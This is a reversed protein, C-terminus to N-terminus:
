HEEGLTHLVNHGNIVHALADAYTHGEGLQDRIVLLRQRDLRTIRIQVFKSM